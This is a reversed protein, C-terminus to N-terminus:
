SRPSWRRTIPRWRLVPPHMSGGVTFGVIDVGLGMVDADHQVMARM